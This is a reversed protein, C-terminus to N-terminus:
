VYDNGTMGFFDLDVNSFGGDKEMGFFSSTAVGARGPARHEPDAWRQIFQM